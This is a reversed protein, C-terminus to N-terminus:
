FSDEENENGEFNEPMETVNLNYNERGYDCKELIAQPIKEIKINKFLKQVGSDYSKCAIILFEDNNMTGHISAVFNGSVHQTTVYLFVREAGTSQKWFIEEDPAYNFGKHLAVAQALMEENYEKNTVYEGFEDLQMLSPALEFFKYGQKQTFMDVPLGGYNDGAMIKDLRVKCHTYAHEGIEIGIFKRNMKLAVAATTGSGLFSDLVFDGPNTALTLIREILKEPKPTAFVSEPNLAKVERKADQTHGVETYPWITMPLTGQKVESLFRKIRPVIDGNEGFWIRNDNKMEEFREKTLRWCAGAPPNIIRGAPTVIPYDNSANYMGVSLNDSTWAGRPDNDPNKYRSNMEETRPLLNLKLDSKQKAYILIYEHSRSINKKLSVPAYSRQWVISELFNNRGFIEDCLVKLYDREDDDISIWISGDNSLLKRLLELRPKMLSLWTSHEFNDDYHEFAAGTNYPPDIYVCKIKGSFNKELAKLALLNDGHILINETTPDRSLNSLEPKEILIRPELNFIEEKGPWTLELKNM